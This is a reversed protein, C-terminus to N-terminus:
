VVINLQLVFAAVLKQTVCDEQVQKNITSRGTVMCDDFVFVKTMIRFRQTEFGVLLFLVFTTM